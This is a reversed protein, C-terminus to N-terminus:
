GRLRMPLSQETHRVPEQRYQMTFGYAGFSLQTEMAFSFEWRWYPRDFHVLQPVVPTRAVDLISDGGSAVQYRADRWDMNFKLGTVGHFTLDAAAIMWQFCGNGHIWEAIHDIDLIIDSPGEFESRLLFGRFLNDHFSLADFNAETFTRMVIDGIVFETPRRRPLIARLM